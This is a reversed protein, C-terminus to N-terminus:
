ASGQLKSLATSFSTKTIKLHIGNSETIRIVQPYGATQEMNTIVSSFDEKGSTSHPVPGFLVARYKPAYQLKRYEYNKAKEYDLCFELRDKSIGYKKAIGTLVSEKVESEGIVVIIGNEYPQYETTERILDLWGAKRLLEELMGYRNADSIRKDIEDLLEALEENNLKKM